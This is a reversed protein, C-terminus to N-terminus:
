GKYRSLDIIMVTIDDLSGRAVALNVLEKCAGVLGANTSKDGLVDNENNLFQTKPAPSSKEGECCRGDKHHSIRKSKHSPLRPSQSSPSVSASHYLCGNKAPSSGKLKKSSSCSSQKVIDVAEQNSVQEWLGDSALVLFEMDPTLHILKTDPEATVWDKLHADGISRSVALTGHVRWTGRHIELFGGKDEIRRREDEREPKHDSTIAEATGERCVVARCDGLNSVVMENGEILATVCCVGSSLGQKLFEEDTKLYGEMMAKEKDKGCNSELMKFINLHLNEAVFEAAKSGGHGDYVGFFDKTGNSSRLIKHSDEMFKKKGKAASVAVGSASFCVGADGPQAKFIDAPIERLVNPIDIKPPRKRKLSSVLGNPRGLIGSAEHFRSRSVADIVVVAASDNAM